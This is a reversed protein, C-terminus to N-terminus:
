YEADKSDAIFLVGLTGPGCHSSIVGGARTIVIEKFYNLGKLYAEVNNVAEECNGSHTIFVRSSDAKLLNEELNKAYKEIVKDIKGRYKTTAEMKGNKVIIKPKLSLANGFLAATSSCRGGRHLYTLTDVVFSARVRPTIDALENVIESRSKGEKALECAKLIQLGIGTSLSRSDIISIRDEAELESAALNMTNNTGSMDSSITFAIIEDGNDLAKKFEDMTDAISRCATKPTTKNADSWKYIENPTIEYRDKYSEEGLVIFLPIITIDNDKIQDDNLDCTSDAFIKIM